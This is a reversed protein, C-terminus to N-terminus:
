GQGEPLRKLMWLKATRWGRSELFAAKSSWAAPCIALATQVGRRAFAGQAASLLADATAGDGALAAPDALDEDHFDDVVGIRAIDHAAPVLLGSVPQAIAYGHIQGEREAVLMDRDKLTLSYRMWLGFRQDAEPHPPWFRPNLGALVRRHVASQRVLGPIDGDEAPRVEPVPPTESFGTRGMYLTVPEYGAAEYLPLLPGKAPCSAILTVAGLAALAQETAALLAEGAGPPADPTLVCDDLLLGPATAVDYIPPPQVIMAHALGVPRGGQEALVWIQRAPVASEFSARIAAEVRVGVDAPVAWLHPDLAERRRADDILLAAMRERDDFTAIRTTVTM